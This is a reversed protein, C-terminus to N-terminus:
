GLRNVASSQLVPIIDYIYVAGCSDMMVGHAYLLTIIYM